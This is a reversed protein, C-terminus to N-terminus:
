WTILSITVCLTPSDPAPAAVPVSQLQQVVGVPCIGHPLLMPRTTRHSGDQKPGHERHKLWDRPARLRAPNNAGNKVAQMRCVGSGAWLGAARWQQAMPCRSPTQPAHVGRRPLQQPWLRSCRVHLVGACPAVPEAEQPFCRVQSSAPFSRLWNQLCQNCGSAAPSASGAGSPEGQLFAWGRGTSTIGHPHQWGRCPQPKRQEREQSHSCM